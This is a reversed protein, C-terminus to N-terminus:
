PNLLSFLCIRFNQLELTRRPIVPLKLNQTKSRINSSPIDSPLIPLLALSLRLGAFFHRQ